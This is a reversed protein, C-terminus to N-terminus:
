QRTSRPLRDLLTVMLVDGPGTSAWIKMLRKSKLQCHRAVFRDRPRKYTM